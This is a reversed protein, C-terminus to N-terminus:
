TFVIKSPRIAELVKGRIVDRGNPDIRVAGGPNAEFEVALGLWRIMNSAQVIFDFVHECSAGIVITKVLPDAAAHL